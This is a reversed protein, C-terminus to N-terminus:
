RYAMDEKTTPDVIFMQHHGANFYHAYFVIM